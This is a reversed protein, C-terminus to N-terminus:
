FKLQAGFMIQRMPPFGTPGTEPDLGLFDTITLLNQGDVYVKVQGIKWRDLISQPVNYAVSATRLKLFSADTLTYQSNLAQYYENPINYGATFKPINTIDGPKTWRSMVVTPMNQLFPGPYTFASSQWNSAMVKKYHLLFSFEFPGYSIWNTMGLDLKPDLSQESFQRETSVTHQGTAPDIGLWYYQNRASLSLGVKYTNAYSSTEIGPFRLLKNRQFTSNLSTRWSFKRTTINRTNLTFEWGTNQVTAPSNKLVDEFGTSSPLQYRILQNSCLHRYWAASLSVKDNWFGLEAAAEMKINSEWQFDPNLLAEPNLAVAGQYRDYGVSYLNYYMYDGIQDNGTLGYSARLKGFSLFPLADKMGAEESFIWAAGIAGFNGYKKGPGFRSSGDRRGTLNVLYKDMYSYGVRGYLATYRYQMGDDYTYSWNSAARINDLLADSTYGSGDLGIMRSKDERFAMGVMAELQHGNIERRYDVQPEVLWGDRMNNSFSARGRTTANIRIPARTAMPYRLNEDSSTNTYNVSIRANLGPRISYAITSNAVFTALTVHHRDLLVSLPNESTSRLVSGFQVIGWNLSGDENYLSPANPPRQVAGYLYKTSNVLKNKDAGYNTILSINLRQNSSRHNFSFSGNIRRNGFDGPIFSTEKFYGGSLRFSTNKNGGSFGAQLNTVHASGSLLERQWDTGKTSDWVGNVDYAYQDPTMNANSFAERRMTLYQELDLVDIFKAIKSIGHYATVDFNTKGDTRGRKTTIRIVGNAGQSGYIATADADKLVEISEINGVGIGSLPDLGGVELYVQSQTRLPRSDMVIGDIVYLPAGGDYRLSNEGRIRIKPPAMPAGSKQSIDLGPVRGQLALLPSVLPQREIEESTVKFLNGTSKRKTTTWYGTSVTVENLSNDQQELVINGIDDKEVKIEKSQFGIYSVILIDGESAQISFAGRADATVGKTSGKVRISAGQLPDGKANRIVGTIPLFAMKMKPVIKRSISITKSEIVYTLPQDKLLSDLFERLPVNRANISVPRSSALLEKSVLTYYGTQTEIAEIIKKIEMMRANITVTQALGSAHVQLLAVTLLLVTLKMILLTKQYIRRYYPWGSNGADFIGPRNESKSM